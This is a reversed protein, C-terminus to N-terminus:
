TNASVAKQQVHRNIEVWAPHRDLLELVDQLTFRPHHPYLAGLIRSILEM